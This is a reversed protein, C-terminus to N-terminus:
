FLCSNVDVNQLNLLEEVGMWEYVDLKWFLINRFMYCVIIDLNDFIFCVNRFFITMFCAFLVIFDYLSLLNWQM